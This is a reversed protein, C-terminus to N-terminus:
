LRAIMALAGHLAATIVLAIGTKRHVGFPVPVLRLGADETEMVVDLLVLSVDPVSRLTEVTEQASYAHLFALPRGDFRTDGLVLETVAHVDNDDDAILIIWPGPDGSGSAVAVGGANVTTPRASLTAM